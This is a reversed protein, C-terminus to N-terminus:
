SQVPSPWGRGEETLEYYSAGPGRRPGGALLKREILGRDVLMRVRAHVHHTTDRVQKTIERLEAPGRDRLVGLIAHDLPITPGATRDRLLVPPDCPEVATLTPM